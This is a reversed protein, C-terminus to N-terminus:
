KQPEWITLRGKEDLVRKADKDWRRMLCANARAEVDPTITMMAEVMLREMEAMREHMLDDEAIEGVFEDHIFGIPRVKGYLISELTPDLCAQM